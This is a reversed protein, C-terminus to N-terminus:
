VVNDKDILWPFIESSRPILRYDETIEEGKKIDTIVVDNIADYNNQESHNMHAQINTSPYAFRSGNIINPWQELLIERVEKRLKKLDTYTLSYVFPADNAYLKEGKFLDRMAFVGVGHIESPALRTKVRSNLLDIQRQKNETM